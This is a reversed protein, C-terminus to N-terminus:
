SKLLNALAWSFVKLAALFVLLVIALKTRTIGFVLRGPVAAAAPQDSMEMAGNEIQAPVAASGATQIPPEVSSAAAKRQGHLRNLQFFVWGLVGFYIVALYVAAAPWLVESQSLTKYAFAAIATQIIVIAYLFYEVAASTAKSSAKVKM